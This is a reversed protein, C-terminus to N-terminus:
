LSHKGCEPCGWLDYSNNDVLAYDFWSECHRCKRENLKREINIIEASLVKTRARMESWKGTDFEGIMADAVVYYEAYLTNLANRNLMAAEQGKPSYRQGPSFHNTVKNDKNARM